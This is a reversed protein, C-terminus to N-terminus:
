SATNQDSAHGTADPKGNGHLDLGGIPAGLLRESRRADALNMHREDLDLLM